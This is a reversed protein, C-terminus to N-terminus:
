GRRVRKITCGFAKSSNNRIEKGSTFDTLAADLFRTEIKSEDQSDDIAGHYVIVGQKNIVFVEPTVMAGYADAVKNQADVVIPFGLKQKEFHERTKAVSETSNSNIGVFAIRKGSYRAAIDKMRGEYALSVPCDVSVWFLAVGDYRRDQLLAELSISESNDARPLNFLPAKEGPKLTKLEATRPQYAPPAPNEATLSAMMRSIDVGHSRVNVNDVRRAINGQPDVIFTKRSALGVGNLVGYSESVSKEVDALLHFNLDEAACFAAKSEKDQVSIGFTVVDKGKLDEQADRLSRAQMSCGPTADAPYFALVVWKGRYDSLKHVKGTEDMLRFDPAKTGPDLAASGSSLWALSGVAALVGVGLFLKWYSKRQM